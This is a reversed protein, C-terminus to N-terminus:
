VSDYANKKRFKEGTMHMRKKFKEECVNGEANNEKFKIRLSLFKIWRFFNRRETRSRVINITQWATVTPSRKKYSGSVSLM